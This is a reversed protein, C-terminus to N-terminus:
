KLPLGLEKRLAMEILYNKSRDEEICRKILAEHTSSKLRIPMPTGKKDKTKMFLPKTNCIYVIYLM